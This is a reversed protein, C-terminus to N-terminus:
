GFDKSTNIITKHPVQFHRTNTMETLVSTLPMKMIDNVNGIPSMAENCLFNADELTLGICDEPEEFTNDVPVRFHISM